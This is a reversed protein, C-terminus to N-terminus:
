LTQKTDRKQKFTKTYNASIVSLELNKGNM